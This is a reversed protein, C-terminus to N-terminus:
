FNYGLYALVFAIGNVTAHASIPVALNQTRDYALALLSGLIFIPILTPLDFHLIAFYIGNAPIAWVSLHQKMATFMYGRFYIEESVPALVAGLFFILIFSEPSKTAAQLISEQIHSKGFVAESVLTVFHEVILLLLGFAVGQFIGLKIQPNIVSFGRRKMAAITILLLTASFFGQVVVFSLSNLYDHLNDVNWIGIVRLALIHTLVYAAPFIVVGEKLSLRGM